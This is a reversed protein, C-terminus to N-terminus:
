SRHDAQRSGTRLMVWTYYIQRPFRKLSLLSIFRGMSPVKGRIYYMIFLQYRRQDNNMHQKHKVYFRHYGQFKKPSHSIREELHNEYMTQLVNNVKCPRGYELMLRLWMDYDQCATLSEDFGGVGSIKEKEVLVQNGIVNRYLICQLTYCNGKHNRNIKNDKRIVNDKAFVFSCQPSWAEVLNEIREPMWEDDDDLGAIFKGNAKSIGLNRAAPAGLCQAQRLYRIEISSCHKYKEVLEPTHDTSADDVIIIEINQHTQCLISNIARELLQPRNRTTIIASVLPIQGTDDQQLTEMIM